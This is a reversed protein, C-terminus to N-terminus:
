YAGQRLNINYELFAKLCCAMQTWGQCNGYSSNLGKQSEKWGSESIKVLTEAPGLSEFAIEVTTNYRSAPPLQKPAAEDHDGAEWEFVIRENPVVKKVWVPVDGPYDAFRWIVKAGEIMPGSAGGTTFYRSLKDPEYVAEFVEKLPRQIKTHVQFKLEM